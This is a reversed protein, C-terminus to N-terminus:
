PTIFLTTAEQRIELKPQRCANSATQQALSTHRRSRCCEAHGQPDSIFHPDHFASRAIRHAQLLATPCLAKLACPGSYASRILSRQDYQCPSRASLTLFLSHAKSQVPLLEMRVLSVLGPFGHFPLRAPNSTTENLLM